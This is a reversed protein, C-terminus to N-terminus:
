RTQARAWYEPSAALAAALVLDGNDRVLRNWGARGGSDSARGLLSRYLTDIRTSVTEPSQYFGLALYDRAMGARLASTWGNVGAQDPERLLLKRYLDSVWARDNGGGIRRYYEDSAYFASAVQAVPMGGRVARVWGALGAADPERDLTDRYFRTVVTGVWEDTGALISTLQYRSVERRVLRDGWYTQEGASAARGLFDRYLAAVYRRAEVPDITPLAAAGTRQLTGRATPWPAAGLPRGTRWALLLLEDGSDRVLNRNADGQATQLVWTVGGVQAITPASSPSFATVGANSGATRELRGTRAEYVQMVQDVQTLVELEGDGDVDAVSAGGHTGYGDPCQGPGALCRTWLRRGDPRLAVLEASRGVVFVEARGDGDVDAVAPSGTVRERTPASWLRRGTRGDLAVVEQGRPSAFYHGTGVVVDQAGDGNLDTLAPSSWVVQDFFSRWKESGDRNFAWVYGGGASGWCPQLQGSGDCDGGVVVDLLGDADVDGIAPSSWLTDWLWKPWGPMPQRTRGSYVHLTQGWSSVVIDLWGDGDLDALAPSSFFGTPGPVVAAPEVRRFITRLVGDRLSYTAVVNGQTTVTLDAVGDRDVDGVAPTGTIPHVSVDILQVLAGATSWVRVIGDNGAAIVEPTGDGTLDAIVPSSYQEASTPGAPLRGGYASRAFPSAVPTLITDAASAATPTLASVLSGLVGAAVVTALFRRTRHTRRNRVSTGEDTGRRSM